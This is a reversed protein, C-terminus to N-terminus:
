KVEQGSFEQTRPREWPGANSSANAASSRGGRHQGSPFRRRKGANRATRRRKRACRRPTDEGEEEAARPGSQKATRAARRTTKSARTPLFCRSAPTSFWGGVLVVVSACEFTSM